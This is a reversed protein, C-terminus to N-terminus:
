KKAGLFYFRSVESLFEAFVVNVKRWRQDGMADNGDAVEFVIEHAKSRIAENWLEPRMIVRGEISSRDLADEKCLYVSGTWIVAPLDKKDPTM